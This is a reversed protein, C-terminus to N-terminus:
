HKGGRAHEHWFIQNQLQDEEQSRLATGSPTDQRRCDSTENMQNLLTGTAVIL